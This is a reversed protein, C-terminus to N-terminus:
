AHKSKIIFVGLLPAHDSPHRPLVEFKKLRLNSHKTWVIHDYNALAIKRRQGDWRWTPNRLNGTRRHLHKPMRLWPLMYKTENFDGGVIINKHYDIGSLIKEYARRHKIHIGWDAPLLAQLYNVIITVEQSGVGLRAEMAKVFYGKHGRLREAQYDAGLIHDGVHKPKRKSIFANGTMWPESMPSFPSYYVYYGRERFYDLIPSEGTHMDVLVENLGFADPDYTEILHDFKRRLKTGDDHRGSQVREWINWFVVTLEKDAM